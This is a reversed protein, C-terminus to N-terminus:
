PGTGIEYSRKLRMLYPLETEEIVTGLLNFRSAPISLIMAPDPVTNLPIVIRYVWLKAAATAEGTGFSGRNVVSNINGINTYTTDKAMFRYTGYLISTSDYPSGTMGPAVNRAKMELAAQYPDLREQSVIDLVMLGNEPDPTISTYSYYGPDQLSIQEPVLTLDTLEYGSLDFYTEYYIGLSAVELADWGNDGVWNTLTPSNTFSPVMTSLSRRGTLTM